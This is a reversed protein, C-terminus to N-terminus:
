VYVPACVYVLLWMCVPAPSFWYLSLPINCSTRAHSKVEWGQDDIWDSLFDM